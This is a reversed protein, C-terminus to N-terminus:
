EGRSFKNAIFEGIEVFHQSVKNAILMDIDPMVEHAILKIDDIALQISSDKIVREVIKEIEQELLSKSTLRNTRKTKKQM